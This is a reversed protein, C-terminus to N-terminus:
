FNFYIFESVRSLNIVALLLIAATAVAWTSSSRWVLPLSRVRQALIAPDAVPRYRRMFEISNPMLWVIAYMLPLVYLQSVNFLGHPFVGEFRLPLFAAIAGVPGVQLRPPLSIGAGGFMVTLMSKAAGINESRFFVWAIVVALFTIAGALLRTAFTSAVHSFYRAKVTLWGHNIVLYLGHLLGWVIFTWSAGHWLGGLLMTVMLNIYRRTKGGRNGGLPIYLYNRLWRSLSIHWRRWFDVINTAKYPSFFNIPFRVGFMRAFGIAMDSYASFDFYIQLTYALAGVWAEAFTVPQGALVANFVPSAFLAAHDALIVKKFLGIAFFSLGISFNSWRFRMQGANFQPLVDNPHVIPGAISHPFFGILLAYRSFRQEAEQGKYVEVLYAISQFTFFSVGLPLTLKAVDTPSGGFLWNLNSALFVAYKFYGLILLNCGIGFAALLWRQRQQQTGAVVRGMVYNLAISTGIVLLFWPETWGYFILSLVLLWYFAASFHWGRLVYFGAVVIPLFVFIFEPSNFLM